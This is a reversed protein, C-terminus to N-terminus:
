AFAFENDQNEKFVEFAHEYEAEAVKLKWQRYKLLEQDKENELELRVNQLENEYWPDM